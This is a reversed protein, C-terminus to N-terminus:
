LLVSQLRSFLARWLIALLEASLGRPELSRGAEREGPVSDRMRLTLHGLLPFARLLFLAKESEVDTAPASRGDGDELLHSGSGM